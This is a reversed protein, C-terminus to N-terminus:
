GPWLSSLEDYEGDDEVVQMASAVVYGRFTGSEVVFIRAESNDPEGAEAFIESRELDNPERVRLGDFSARLKLARVPKFLVEVRTTQTASKNSRLLLLGHSATARWLRFHRTSDFLGNV